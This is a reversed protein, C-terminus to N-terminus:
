RPLPFSVLAAKGPWPEQWDPFASALAWVERIIPINATLDGIHLKPLKM